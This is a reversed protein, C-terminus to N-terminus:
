GYKGRWWPLDAKKRKPLPKLTLFVGPFETIGGFFPAFKSKVRRLQKMRREKDGFQFLEVIDPRKILAEYIEEEPWSTCSIDTGQIVM